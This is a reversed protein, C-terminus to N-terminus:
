AHSMDISRTAPKECRFYTDLQSDSVELAKMIYIYIYIYWDCSHVSVVPKENDNNDSRTDSARVKTM